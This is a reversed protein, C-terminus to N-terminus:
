LCCKWKVLIVLVLDVEHETEQPKQEAPVSSGVSLLRARARCSASERTHAHIWFVSMLPEFDVQLSIELPSGSVKDEARSQEINEIVNSSSICFHNSPRGQAPYHARPGPVCILPRLGIM